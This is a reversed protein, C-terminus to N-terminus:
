NIFLSFFFDGKEELKKGKFLVEEDSLLKEGNKRAEKLFTSNLSEIRQIHKSIDTTRTRNSHGDSGIFSYINNKLYKEAVKKAEKGFIGNISGANLQFLYGEEIFLNIKNPKDQFIKYREPHAIIPTIGRIKLEYLEEIAEERDLDEPDFEILMYRSDNITGIIGEKLDELIYKTFFVEQGFYVKIYIDHEDCLKQVELTLEKIKEIPTMFKGKYYHPTLVIKQTGSVQAKKLMSIAIEISKAGDDINPIIHSHIDIM